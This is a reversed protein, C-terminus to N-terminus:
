RLNKPVVSISVVKWRFNAWHTGVTMALNFPNGAMLVTGDAAVIRGVPMPNTPHTYAPDEGGEHLLIFCRVEKVQARIEEATLGALNNAAVWGSSDLLYTVRFDAVCDVVPLPLDFNGTSQNLTQKVLVGTGQACHTPPTVGNPNGAIFYDTRNFPFHIGAAVNNSVGYLLLKKWDPDLPDPAPVISALDATTASFAYQNGFTVLGRFGVNLDLSDPQLAIVGDTAAFVGPPLIEPLHNADNGLLGLRQGSADQSRIVNTARIVLHDANNIGLPSPNVSNLARPPDGADAMPGPEVMAALTLPLPNPYAWPLGFGAHELDFRLLELGTGTEIQTEAIGSQQASRQLTKTFSTLVMAMLLGM